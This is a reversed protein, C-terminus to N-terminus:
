RLKLEVAGQQFGAFRGNAYQPLALGLQVADGKPRALVAQAVSAIDSAVHGDIQTLLLGGKLKAADAPSDKEVSKILLAEATSIGFSAATEATLSGLTLGLRQRILDDFPMMQVKVTRTKGGDRMQLEVLNGPSTVIHQFCEVLRGPTKGNVQVIEEGVRLGAKDAPSGPQVEIVNLPYPGAKIKAGFWLSDTWEPTFFSSLSAAVQKVPIAFAVGIGQSERYTRANIGIMEGRLNILPGGSNGPNIAADIQLWDNVWLQENGSEARRNKSSLIGHAVSVGLGYPNGLAIVTEGLLLDD